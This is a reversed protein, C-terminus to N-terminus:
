TIIYFNEVGPVPNIIEDIDARGILYHSLGKVEEMHLAAGLKPRRMDFELILTKKGTMALSAGLNLSIFSKGEGSMTSTFLISQLDKGIALYYLNTRLSRLEEAFITRRGVDMMITETHKTYSITGLVPIQTTKEIDKRNRIKDNFSDSVYIWILPFVFGVLIFLMYVVSHVPQVPAFSSEASDIIRIDSITSSLSMETEEKTQLLYKYLHNESSDQRSIDILIREKDPVKKLIEQLQANKSELETATNKLNQEITKINELIDKKLSKIKDDTALVMPNQEGTVRITSERNMEYENLRSILSILTPDSLGASNSLGSITGPVTGQNNKVYNEIGNLVSQQIKVQNLQADNNQVSMLYLNAEESLNTIGEKRKYQEITDEIRNMDTSLLNLRREIFSLTKTGEVNKDDIAAQTYCDILNNIIDIGRQPVIDKIEL